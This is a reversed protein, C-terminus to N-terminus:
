GYYHEMRDIIEEAAQFTLHGSDEANCLAEVADLLEASGYEAQVIAHRLGDISPATAM